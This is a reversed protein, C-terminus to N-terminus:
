LGDCRAPPLAGDPGTVVVQPRAAPDEAFAVTCVLQHVARPTLGTVPFPARLRLRRGGDPAGTREEEVHPRGGTRPLETRLGAAAEAPSPGSLLVGLAMDTVVGARRATDPSIEYGTGFGEYPLSGDANRVPLATSAPFPRAIDRSVPMPRGDPGLFYVLMRFEPAPAVAVTAAAGAEVVDSDRVGCGTLSLAALGSLAAAVAKARRTM